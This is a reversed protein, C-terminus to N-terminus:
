DDYQHAIWNKKFEKKRYTGLQLNEREFILNM